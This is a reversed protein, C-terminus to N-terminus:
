AFFLFRPIVHEFREVIEERPFEEDHKDDSEAAIEGQAGTEDLEAMEAVHEADELFGQAALGALQARELRQHQAQGATDTGTVDGTDADGHGEAARARHEPHPYGRQHAHGAAKELAGQGLDVLPAVAVAQVTAARGVVDLVAQLQAPHCHHERDQQQHGVAEGEVAQLGVGHGVRQLVSEAEFRLVGADGQGGQEAQHEDTTDLTDGRNRVQQYRDLGQGVDAHGQVHDAGLDLVHWGHQFGDELAGEAEVRRKAAQQAAGDDHTHLTTHEGVFGAQATRRVDGGHSGHFM